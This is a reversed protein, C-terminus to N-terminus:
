EQLYSLFGELTLARHGTERQYCATAAPGAGTGGDWFSAEMECTQDRLAIWAKQQAKLTAKRDDDLKGMLQKYAANLRDDWITAEKDSCAEMMPTSDNGDEQLCPDAVTGICRDLSYGSESSSQICDEIAQRDAKTPTAPNDEQAFSPACSILLGGFLVAAFMSKM